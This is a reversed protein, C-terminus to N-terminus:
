GEMMGINYGEMIGDKWGEMIGNNLKDGQAIDFPWGEM